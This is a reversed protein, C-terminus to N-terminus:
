NEEEKDKEAEAKEKEKIKEVNDMLDRFGISKM